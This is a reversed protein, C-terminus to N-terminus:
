SFVDNSLNCHSIIWNYKHFQRKHSSLREKAGRNVLLILYASFLSPRPVHPIEHFGPIREGCEVGCQRFRFAPM